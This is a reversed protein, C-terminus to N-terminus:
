LSISKRRNEEFSKAYHGVEKQRKAVCVSIVFCRFLGSLILFILELIRRKCIEKKLSIKVQLLTKELTVYLSRQLVM